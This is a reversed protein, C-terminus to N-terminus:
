KVSELFLKLTHVEGDFGESGDDLGDSRAPIFPRGGTEYKIIRSAKATQDPQDDVSLTVTQDAAVRATLSTRGNIPTKSRVTTTGASTRYAFVVHGEDLTLRYGRGNGQKVIVGSATDSAPTIEAELRLAQFRLKPYRKFPATLLDYEQKLPRAPRYEGGHFYPLRWGKRHAKRADEVVTSIRTIEGIQPRHDDTLRYGDPLQPDGSPVDVTTQERLHDRMTKLRSRFRPRYALNVFENPDKRHDYLEELGNDNLIYRWHVTRVGHVNELSSISPTDSTAEPDNLIPVLSEGDLQGRPPTTDTLDALTPYVDLLNVPQNSRSGPETMGPVRFVLPMRTGEEWATFKEWHEKEGIHMGHDSWLVVITDKKHGSRKLADLLRGVQKDAFTVSALYAQIAQKWQRNQLVYQHFHRRGQPVTDRLDDERHKPITIDDLPYKKFYKEPVEWPLHPRIFGVALFFPKERKKELQSIAWSASRFDAMRRTNEKISLWSFWTALPNEGFLNNFHRNMRERVPRPQPPVPRHPGPFYEDWTDPDNLSVPMWNPQQTHYIKGTGLATYGNNRFHQSLTVADSLVDSDRWAPGSEDPWTNTLVGSRTPRVGTMVAMRSPHCASAATHANTFAMGNNALRDINPTHVEGPYGDLHGVWDNLDDVSIFLINKPEPESSSSPATSCGAVLLLSFLFLLAGRHGTM